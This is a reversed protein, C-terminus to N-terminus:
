EQKAKVKMEPLLDLASSTIAEFPQQSNQMYWVSSYAAMSERWPEFKDPLKSTSVKGRYAVIIDELHKTVIIPSTILSLEHLSEVLQVLSMNFKIVKEPIFKVSIKQLEATTAVILTNPRDMLNTPNPIFYDLADNVLCLKGKYEKVFSELLIATESNRGFNGALLVIDSWKSYDILEALSQKAFSGSPTSPCFYANELTKGVIKQLVNPLIIKISGARAKAAERYALAVDSFGHANGGAILIKGALMKNEPRSWLLDGFLPNKLDQVQWYNDLNFM